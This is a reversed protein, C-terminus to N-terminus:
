KQIGFRFVDHANERMVAMAEQNQMTYGGYYDLDFTHPNRFWNEIHMVLDVATTKGAEVSFSSAPLGIRVSNDVFDTISDVVIVNGAYIQGPGLHFDFSAVFDDPRKWKGNIKLYHYGGGLFVPWFMDREPPNLFMLTKNKEEIIGFTFSISDYEGPPLPDYVEWQMTSPIDNDVYYIDVWQDILIDDKGQRHLTVDSIFYQVETVLFPNGAENTYMMQDTQLPSGDLFHHFHIKLKGKTEPEPPDDDKCSTILMGSVLIMLILSFIPFPSRAKM